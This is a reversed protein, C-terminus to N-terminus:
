SVPEFDLCGECPGLPNIACRLFASQANHHCDPNGISEEPPLILGTLQANIFTCTRQSRVRFDAETLCAGTFNCTILRANAFNAQHLYAGRFDCCFLVADQFDACALEQYSFDQLILQAGRYNKQPM